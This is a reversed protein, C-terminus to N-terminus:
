LSGLFAALDAREQDTFGIDFRLNYFEVVDRLTTASGNHFYPARAALGALGTTPNTTCRHPDDV